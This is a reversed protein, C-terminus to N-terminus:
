VSMLAKSGAIPAGVTTKCRSPSLPVLNSNPRSTAASIGPAM